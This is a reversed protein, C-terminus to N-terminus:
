PESNGVGGRVPEGSFVGFFRSFDSFRGRTRNSLAYRFRTPKTATRRREDRVKRLVSEVGLAASESNEGLTMSYANSLGNFRRPRFNASDSANKPLYTSPSALETKKQM